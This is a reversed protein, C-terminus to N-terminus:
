QEHATIAESVSQIQRWSGTTIEKHVDGPRRSRLTHLLVRTTGGSPGKPGEGFEPDGKCNTTVASPPDSCQQSAHMGVSHQGPRVTSACSIPANNGSHSYPSAKWGLAAKGKGATIPSATQM